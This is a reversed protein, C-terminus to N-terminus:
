AVAAQLICTAFAAGSDVVYAIVNKSSLTASITGPAGGAWKWFANYALTKAAAAHQTVEIVGSQGAVVNSPAALTTNETMTHSFNNALALNVAISAASSTLATYSYRQAKTWTHNTALYGDLVIAGAGKPTLTMGIDTDTGAAYIAVAAGTASSQVVTFNVSSPQTYTQLATGRDSGLSVVGAAGRGRIRIPLDSTGPYYPYQSIQSEQPVIQIFTTAAYNVPTGTVAIGTIAGNAVTATLVAGSGAFLPPDYAYVAPASEYLAGGADIAM